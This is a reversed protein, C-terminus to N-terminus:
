RAVSEDTRKVSERQRTSGSRRNRIESTLQALSIAQNPYAENEADRRLAEAIGEEDDLM